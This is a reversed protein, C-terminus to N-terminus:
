FNVNNGPRVTSQHTTSQHTTSQHTTANNTFNAQPLMLPTGTNEEHKEVAQVVEEVQELLTNAEKKNKKSTTNPEVQALQSGVARLVNVVPVNGSANNTFNAQPLM